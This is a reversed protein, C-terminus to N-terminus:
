YNMEILDNVFLYIGIIKRSASKAPVSKRIGAINTSLNVVAGANHICAHVPIPMNPHNMNFFPRIGRGGFLEMM